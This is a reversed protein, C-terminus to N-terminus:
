GRVLWRAQLPVPRCTDGSYGQAFRRHWPQPPVPLCTRCPERAIPVTGTRASCRAPIAALALIRWFRFQRYPVRAPGRGPLWRGQDTLASAALLVVTVGFLTWALRGAKGQTVQPM